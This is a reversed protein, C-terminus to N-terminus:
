LCASAPRRHLAVPGEGISHTPLLQVSQSSLVFDLDHRTNPNRVDTGGCLGKLQVWSESHELREYQSQGLRQVQLTRPRRMRPVTRPLTAHNLDPGPGPEALRRRLPTLAAQMRSAYRAHTFFSPALIHASSQNATNNQEAPKGESLQTHM